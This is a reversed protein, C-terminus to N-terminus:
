FWADRCIVTRLLKIEDGKWSAAPTSVELLEVMFKCEAERVLHCGKEFANKAEDLTTFTLDGFDVPVNWDATQSDWHWVSIQFKNKPQKM